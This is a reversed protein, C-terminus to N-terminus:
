KQSNYVSLVTHLWGYAKDNGSYKIAEALTPLGGGYASVWLQKWYAKSDAISAFKRLHRSGGTWSMISVCNHAARHWSTSCNGSEAIAVAHYLKDLNVNNGYINSGNNIRDDIYVNNQIKRTAYNNGTQAKNRNATLFYM